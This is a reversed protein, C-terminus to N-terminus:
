KKPATYMYATEYIRLMSYTGHDVVHGKSFSEMKQIIGPQGVFYCQIM